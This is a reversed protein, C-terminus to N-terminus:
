ANIITVTLEKKGWKRAEAKTPMWIDFRETHRYRKNMRDDCTYVKGNIRLQTGFPYKSPCALSGEGPVGGSANENPNEDTEDTSSTYATVTANVTVVEEQQAIAIKPDVTIHLFIGIAALILAIKALSKRKKVTRKRRLSPEFYTM